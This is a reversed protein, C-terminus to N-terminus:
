DNSNAYVAVESRGLVRSLETMYGDEGVVERLLRLASPIFQAFWERGKKRWLFGYAGLAQM